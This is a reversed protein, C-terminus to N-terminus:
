KIFLLDNKKIIIGNIYLLKKVIVLIVAEKLSFIVFYIDFIYCFNKLKDTTKNGSFNPLNSQRPLPVGPSDMALAFRM